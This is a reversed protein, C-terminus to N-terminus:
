YSRGWLATVKAPKECFLCCEPAESFDQKGFEFPICLTKASGTLVAEGENCAEMAKISEEKSWDKVKIECEATDCFTALCIDKKNLQTMFQEKTTVTSM